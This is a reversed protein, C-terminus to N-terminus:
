FIERVILNIKVGNEETNIEWDFYSKKTKPKILLCTRRKQIFREFDFFPILTSSTKLRKGEPGLRIILRELAGDNSSKNMKHRNKEFAFIKAFAIKCSNRWIKSIHLHSNVTYLIDECHVPIELAMPPPFAKKLQFGRQDFVHEEKYTQDHSLFVKRQKQM